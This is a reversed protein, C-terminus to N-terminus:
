TLSRRERIARLTRMAFFAAVAVCPVILLAGPIWQGSAFMIIPIAAPFLLTIAWSIAPPGDGRAGDLGKGRNEAGPQRPTAQERYWEAWESAQDRVAVLFDKLV